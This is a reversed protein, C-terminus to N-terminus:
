TLVHWNHSKKSILADSRNTDVRHNCSGNYLSTHSVYEDKLIPSPFCIIQIESITPKKSHSADHMVSKLKGTLLKLSM